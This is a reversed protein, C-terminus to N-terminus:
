RYKDENFDLEIIGHHPIRDKESPLSMYDGFTRELIEEFNRPGYFKMNEFEFEIVDYFKKKNFMHEYYYDKQGDTLVTVYDEKGNLMKHIKKEVNYYFKTPIWTFPKQIAIKVKTRWSDNFIRFNARNMRKLRKFQYLAFFQLKGKFSHENIDDLPYIDIFIKKSMEIHEWAQQVLTTNKKQVRAFSHVYNKDTEPIQLFFSDNMEELLVTMLKEYDDRILCIDLDDDWPIFGKHRVAGLLTGSFLQYTINHKRCIRDVEAMMELQVMQLKRLTEENLYGYM